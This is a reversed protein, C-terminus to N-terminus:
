LECQRTSWYHEYEHKGCNGCPVNYWDATKPEVKPDNPTFHTKDWEEVSVSNDDVPIKDTYSEEETFPSEVSMRIPQFPQGFTTQTLWICRNKIISDIEEQSLKMCYTMPFFPAAIRDYFVYLTQYQPQDKALPYNAKPFDLSEM